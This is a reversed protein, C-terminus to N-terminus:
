NVPVLYRRYGSVDADFGMANYLHHAADRRNASILQVKYCGQDTAFAIASEMLRRGIGLRRYEPMVVVNEIISWPRARRTLNPVVLVDITGVVQGDATAIGVRRNPEALIADLAVRAADADEDNWPPEEHLHSLIERLGELDASTVSRVDIQVM